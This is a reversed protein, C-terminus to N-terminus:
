HSVPKVPKSVSKSPSVSHCARRPVQPRRPVSLFFGLVALWSRFCRTLGAESSAAPAHQPAQRPAGPISSVLVRRPVSRGAEPRCRQSLLILGPSLTSAMARSWQEIDPLHRKSLPVESMLFVYLPAESM